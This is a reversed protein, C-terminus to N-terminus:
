LPCVHQALAVVHHFQVTSAAAGALLALASAALSVETRLGTAPPGHLLADVRDPVGSGSMALAGAPAQETRALAVKIIARAVVTRDGVVNAAEEDAWRETAFRLRRSMPRLPPVAGAAIEGIRVFRHHHRDLHSQEHALMAACEDGDLLDLAGRSVVVHGPKGPVAYAIPEPCPLIQVGTAPALGSTAARQRAVTRAAGVLALVVGVSAAVGLAASGHADALLADCWGLSDAVVELQAVWGLVLLLLAWVVALACVVLTATLVQVAHKPPLRRQIATALLGCAISAVLPVLLLPNM